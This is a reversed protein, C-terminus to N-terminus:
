PSGRVIKRFLANAEELLKADGGPLDSVAAKATEIEREILQDLAHHRPGAGLEKTMAKKELLDDLFVSVDSSLAVGARMEGLNMPVPADPNTRLWMLALAPRLSYFYKKLPVDAEDAIFRRYQSEAMHLYHHASPRQHAVKEGLAAIKDMAQSDARYVIPSRLWELLVPNPKLLLQLAKKLDWGNIDLDGEIPLEIVDRRANISLYWDPERVYVFRVDYDSDPSPFGWARSGSEVAFLIRVREEREVADLGGAILSRMDQPIPDKGTM